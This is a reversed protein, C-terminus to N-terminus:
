KDSDMASQLRRIQVNRYRIVTDNTDNFAGLGVYFNNGYFELKSPLAANSIVSKGNLTASVKGDMLRFTFANRDTNLAVKKTVRPQAWGKSLVVVDGDTKNHRMRFGHWAGSKFETDSDPVGMVLGAQFEGNSTSVVEFEGRVEFNQGARARSYLLHGNHHSAIEFSDKGARLPRGWSVPWNADSQNAPLFDVWEGKASKQEFRILDSQAKAFALTREDGANDSIVQAYSKLADEYEEIDRSTEADTVLTGSNGTRAAVELSMTSLDVGWNRLQSADPKWNIAELQRRAEEHHEAIFATVAYATRWSDRFSARSPEAIYGEFMAQLHPWVDEGDYLHLGVPLENDQEMDGVVKFFEYPVDTDFRGTQIAMKGLAQMAAHSGLWRPRLGWRMSSWAGPHDLQISTARDFWRRMQEADGNGLTVTMMRHPATALDPRLEWAATLSKEALTIHHRFGDWGQATVSNAYGRGRANWAENIHLEGDLVLELWAFDKGASKVSQCINTGNRKFFQEGWGGIFIKAVEEQDQPLFSGDGLAQSWLLLAASDSQGAREPQNRVKNGLLVAAYFKPYARYKSKSYEESARELQRISETLNVAHYGALTLVLPDDCNAALIKEILDRATAKNSRARSDDEVWATMLLTADADWPKDHRGFEKYGEIWQRRRFAEHQKRVDAETLSNTTSRLPQGAASVGRTSEEMGALAAERAKKAFRVVFIATVVCFAVLVAVTVGAVWLVIRTSNSREGRSMPMPPPAAQFSQPADRRLVADLLEWGTMGECWAMEGGTLEGTRRRRVLEDLNFVGLSQGNRNVNYNM